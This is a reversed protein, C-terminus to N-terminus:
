IRTDTAGSVKKLLAVPFDSFLVSATLPSAVQGDTFVNQWRTPVGGPLDLATNSWRPARGLKSMTRPVAILAWRDGLRRMFAIVHNAHKGGVEVPIYEGELFLQPDDRRFALAKWITFLKIRGDEWHEMLEKPNACRKVREFEKMRAEYDVARRNDPDALSFDWLETGQYFDPVGPATIKLLVQGLSNLAGYWAVKRHVKKFDKLFKGAGRSDLLRDVFALVQDEYGNDPNLWNTHTRAERLAKILYGHLRERTIPWAGLLTQYIFIQENRDPAAEDPNWRTWRDLCREWERPIESLVDIRARVDESRKTDHTSTANMTTRRRVLNRRHFTEIGFYTEPGNSDGGVENVSLLPHHVYFTTDELGKAMVPGTFQQWRKVFDRNHLLVDRIYAGADPTADSCTQSDAAAREITRRDTEPISDERIYTRYVPLCATISVLAERLERRTFDRAHRSSQALAALWDTLADVEAAFLYEMAQRKRKRFVDVARDASGTFTRYVRELEVYGEEDVLVGNVMNLFDYGTSGQAKWDAPITEDGALIKEVVVYIRPLRDLYARPDLLGDIHDIRLGQVVGRNVLDLIFAHTAKFVDDRETRLCILDSVDFFRRYNIADAAKRWYALRYPQRALIRDIEDVDATDQAAHVPLSTDCYRLTGDEISLRGSELANGYPESLIPLLIKGPSWDIDFFNAYTSAQGRALVDNWWPNEPHAAMHNPVIDLLLGLGAERLRGAFRDFDEHSGIEPNIRAPDTVDYGHASGTRARLLPSAYIHDIGLEHLYELIGSADEFRFAANFQLRYTSSPIRVLFNTCNM